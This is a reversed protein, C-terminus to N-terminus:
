FDLIPSSATAYRRKPIRGALHALRGAETALRMARAMALPNKAGSIATNLLVADCGLELAVAVDSATGVGADVIIPVNAQELIIRMSNRNIIGQGSGIPAGLPMVATCGIEELRKALIPDDTCYAMVNFGEEVLLEAAAITQVMDPMLTKEDGIVELKLFEDIGLERALHAIKVADEVTYCGATNPLLTHRSTDIHDLLNPTKGSLDVRRLAVTVIEAGSAELCQGMLELTEYKGTGVILRSRFERRGLVLPTDISAAPTVAPGM